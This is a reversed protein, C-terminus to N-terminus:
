GGTVPHKNGDQLDALPSDLGVFNNYLYGSRGRDDVHRKTGICTPNRNGRCATHESSGDLQVQDGTAYTHLRCGGYPRSSIAAASITGLLVGDHTPHLLFETRFDARNDIVFVFPLKVQYETFTRDFRHIRSIRHRRRANRAMRGSFRMEVPLAWCVQILATPGTLQSVIRRILEECDASAATSSDKENMAITTMTMPNYKSLEMFIRASYSRPTIKRNPCKNGLSFPGPIMPTNAGMSRMTRI